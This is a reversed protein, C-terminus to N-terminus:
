TIKGQFSEFINQLHHCGSHRNSEDNIGAFALQLDCLLKFRAWVGTWVTSLM